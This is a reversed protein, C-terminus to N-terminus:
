CVASGPGASDVKGANIYAHPVRWTRQGINPYMKTAESELYDMLQVKDVKGSTPDIKSYLLQEM